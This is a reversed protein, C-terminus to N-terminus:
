ITFDFRNGVPSYGEEKVRSWDIGKIKESLEEVSSAYVTTRKVGGQLFGADQLKEQEAKKKADAAEEKRNERQREIRERQKESTKELEAFFSVEGDDGIAIGLRKVDEGQEGLQNKMEGLKAVADDLTKLNEKKYDEDAAMKELEEPTLLVSYDNKGRSLYSAAEEETSYDAIMFDMNGYSKQLDKLLKKARDSLTVKSGSGTKETEKAKATRQSATTKEQEYISSYANYNGIREM